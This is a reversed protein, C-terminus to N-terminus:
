DNTKSLNNITYFFELYESLDDRIIKKADEFKILPNKIPEGYLGNAVQSNDIADTVAKLLEKTFEYFDNSFAPELKEIDLEKPYRAKIEKIKNDILDKIM